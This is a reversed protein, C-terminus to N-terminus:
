NNLKDIRKTSEVVEGNLRMVPTREMKQQVQTQLIRLDAEHMGQIEKPWKAIPAFRLAVWDFSASARKQTLNAIAGSLKVLGDINPQEIFNTM